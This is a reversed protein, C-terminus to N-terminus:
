GFNPHEAEYMINIRIVYKPIESTVVEGAHLVSANHLGHRFFLASGRKPTVAHMVSRGDFLLTNGGEIGEEPGNLYLLMSLQSRGEDWVDMQKTEPNLRFGPWDGDVHPKFQEGRLYRYTNFRQSVGSMLRCGDIEEPLHPAIRRFLEAATADNALWHVTQNMRMGSPTNIGPAAAGFGLQETVDILMNCEAETLVNEIIFAQYRDWSLDVVRPHLNSIPELLKDDVYYIPTDLVRGGEPLSGLDYAAIGTSYAKL